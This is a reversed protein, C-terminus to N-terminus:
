KLEYLIKTGFNREVFMWVSSNKRSLNTGQPLYLDSFRMESNKTKGRDIDSWRPEGFEFIM